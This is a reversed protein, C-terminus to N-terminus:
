SNKLFSSLLVRIIDLESEVIYSSLVSYDSLKYNLVEFVRNLTKVIIQHHDCALQPLSNLDFWNAKKADDGAFINTKTSVISYYILSLIRGRPDRNVTDVVYSPLIFSLHVGIEEFIERKAGHEGTEDMELFGGPLAWMGKFPENGREILALLLKTNDDSLKLTLCDTTVM